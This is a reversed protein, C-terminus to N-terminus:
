HLKHNILGRKKVVFNIHGSAIFVTKFIYMWRIDACYIKTSYVGNENWSNHGTQFTNDSIQSEAKMLPIIELFNSYCKIPM